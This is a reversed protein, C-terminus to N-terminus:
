SSVSKLYREWMEEHKVYEIGNNWMKKVPMWLWSKEKTWCYFNLAIWQCTNDLGKQIQTEQEQTM